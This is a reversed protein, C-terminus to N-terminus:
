FWYNFKKKIIKSLIKHLWLEHDLYPGNPALPNLRFHTQIHGFIDSYTQIHGFIDSYTQILLIHFLTLYIEARQLKKFLVSCIKYFWNIITRENIGTDPVTFQVKQHQSWLGIIHLVKKYRINPEQFIMVNYHPVNYFIGM